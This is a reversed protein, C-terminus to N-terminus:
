NTKLSIKSVELFKPLAFKRRIATLAHKESAITNESKQM